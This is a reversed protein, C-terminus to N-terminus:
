GTYSGDSGYTLITYDGDTAVGPSGTTIGSYYVTLLRLIVVGDGGKGSNGSGAGGGGGLGDTGATGNGGSNSAGGGGIGGDGERNSGYGGGGGSYDVDSGTINNSIGAGGKGVNPDGGTTGGYGDQSGGAGGGGGYNSAGNSGGGGEYRGSGGVGDPGGSTNGGGGGGGANGGPGGASASGSSVGAGGYGGGLATKSKFTTNSGPNGNGSGVSSGGAGIVIPYNVGVELIDMGFVPEGFGGGGSNISAGGSGGGGILLYKAPYWELDVPISIGRAHVTQVRGASLDSEIKEVIGAFTNTGGSDDELSDGVKITKAFVTGKMSFDQAYYRLLNMAVDEVTEPTVFFAKDIVIINEPTGAPIGPVRLEYPERIHIKSAGVTWELTGFATVTADFYSLQPDVTVTATGAKSTSFALTDEPMLFRYDGVEIDGDYIQYNVHSQNDQYSHSTLDIGTVPTTLKTLRNSIESNTFTFDYGSIESIFELKKLQVVGSGSCSIYAGYGLALNQLVERSSVGLPVFGVVEINQLSADVSYELDTEEFLRSVFQEITKHTGPVDTVTYFLKGADIYPIQELMSLASLCSLILLTM